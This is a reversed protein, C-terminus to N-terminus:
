NLWEKMKEVPVSVYSTDTEAIAKIESKKTGMCCNLTMSCTDGREIYYLALEDGNEDQRLVKIAGSLLLPIRTITQSYDIMIDGKKHEKLSGYSEIEDMLEKEFMFGYGDELEKRM